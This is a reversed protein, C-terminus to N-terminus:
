LCDHAAMNTNVRWGWLITTNDILKNNNNNKIFLWLTREDQGQFDGVWRQLYKQRLNSDRSYDDERRKVHHMSATCLTPRVTELMQGPLM